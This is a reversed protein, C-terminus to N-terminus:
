NNPNALVLREVQEKTPEQKYFYTQYYDCSALAFNSCGVSVYYDGTTTWGEKAIRLHGYGCFPCKKFVDDETENTIELIFVSPNYKLYYITTNTKARTIAVYFLRREEAFDISDEHQSLVYELVPDDSILSPFGYIDSNCKLLIVIDAELGKAQHVTLCRIKRGGVTIDISNDTEHYSFKERKSHFEPLEGTSREPKQSTDSVPLSRNRKGEPETTSAPPVKETPQRSVSSSGSRRQFWDFTQCM